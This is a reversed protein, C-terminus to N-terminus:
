NHVTFVVANSVGAAPTNVTVNRNSNAGGAAGAPINITANIHSSDVVTVNTFTVFNAPIIGNGSIAITTGNTTFNTGVLSVPFSSGRAGTNPSISTLTVAPADSVTFTVNNSTGAGTTVSINRVGGGNLSANPAITFTATISGASTVVNSVTIGSGFPVNITGGALNSGTLTVNYVDGRFGNNPSITNLQPLVNAGQFEVAGADVSNNTKRANGYFDLAPAATFQNTGGPVRNIVSSGSLPGYNGLVFGSTPNAEALPGWSMNIWNNGEDVTANPTLNFLPNPV